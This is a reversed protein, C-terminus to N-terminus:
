QFADRQETLCDIDPWWTESLVYNCSSATWFSEFLHCAPHMIFECLSESVLRRIVLWCVSEDRWWRQRSGKISKLSFSVRETEATFFDSSTETENAAYNINRQPLWIRVLNCLKYEPVQYCCVQMCKHQQKMAADRSHVNLPLKSKHLTQPKSPIAAAPIFLSCESWNLASTHCIFGHLTDDLDAYSPWRFTWDCESAVFVLACENALKNCRHTLQHNEHLQNAKILWFSLSAGSKRELGTAAWQRETTCYKLQNCLCTLLYSFNLVLTCHTRRYYHTVTVEGNASRIEMSLFPNEHIVSASHFSGKKQTFLQKEKCVTRLRRLNTQIFFASLKPLKIHRPEDRWFM